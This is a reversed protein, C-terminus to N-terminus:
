IWYHKLLSGQKGQKIKILYGYHMYLPIAPIITGSKELITNLHFIMETTPCFLRTESIFSLKLMQNKM